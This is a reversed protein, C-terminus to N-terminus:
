LVGAPPEVSGAAPRCLDFFALAADPDNAWSSTSRAQPLFQSLGPGPIVQDLEQFGMSWDPFFRTTVAREVLVTIENHRDDTSIRQMQKRVAGAPGELLQLFVGANHGLMGTVGLATNNVRSVHLLTLLEAPSWKRTATSAYIVQLLTDM